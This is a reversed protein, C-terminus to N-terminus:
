SKVLLLWGRENKVYSNLLRKLLEIVNDSNIGKGTITLIRRIERGSEKSSVSITVKNTKASTEGKTSVKDNREYNM